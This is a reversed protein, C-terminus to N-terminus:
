SIMRMVNKTNDNPKNMRAFGLPHPSYRQSGVKNDAAEADVHAPRSTGNVVDATDVIGRKRRKEQAVRAEFWARVVGTDEDMVKLVRKTETHAAHWEISGCVVMSVHDCGIMCGHGCFIYMAVHM